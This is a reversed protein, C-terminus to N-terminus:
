EPDPMTAQLALKPKGQGDYVVRYVSYPVLSEGDETLAAYRDDISLRLRTEEDYNVDTIEAGAVLVHTYGEGLKQSLKQPDGSWDAKKWDQSVPGLDFEGALTYHLEM